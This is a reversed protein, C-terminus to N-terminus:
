IMMMEYILAHSFCLSIVDDMDIYFVQLGELGVVDDLLSFNLM